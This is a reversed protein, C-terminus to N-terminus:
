ACCLAPAGTGYDAFLVGELPSALPVHLEATGVAYRRGTGVGGALNQKPRRPPNPTLMSRRPDMPPTVAVRRSAEMCWPFGGSGREWVTTGEPYGRVSNTGGIPFAEYPPLDGLVVGSKGSLWLRPKPHLLVLADADVPRRSARPRPLRTCAGRECAPSEPAPPRTGAVSERSRGM